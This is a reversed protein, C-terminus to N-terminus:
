REEKKQHLNKGWSCCLFLKQLNLSLLLLCFGSLINCWWDAIALTRKTQNPFPHKQKKKNREKQKKEYLSLFLFSVACRWCLLFYYCFCFCFLLRKKKFFPFPGKQNQKAIWPNMNATNAFLFITKLSKGLSARREKKTYQNLNFHELFEVILRILLSLLPYWRKALKNEHEVMLTEYKTLHNRSTYM